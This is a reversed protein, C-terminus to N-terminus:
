AAADNKMWDAHWRNHGRRRIPAGCCRCTGVYNFGDWSASRRDPRHFNLLCLLRQM